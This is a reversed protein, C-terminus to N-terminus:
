ATEEELEPKKIYFSLRKLGAMFDVPEVHVGAPVNIVTPAFNLIGKIGAAILDNAAAQAAEQPVTIFGIDIQREAVIKPMERPHAIEIGSIATGVKQEDTDFFARVSFDYQDFNPYDAIAQGLRGMGVIAVHWARTLGLIRRLERRLTAVTYGTGRKGFSGFKTLDKRVQFASVQAEKALYGSSTQQVQAEELQGLIRLYTVLRSITASPIGPM